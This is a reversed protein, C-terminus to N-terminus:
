ALSSRAASSLAMGSQLATKQWSESVEVPAMKSTWPNASTTEAVLAMRTTSPMEPVPAIGQGISSQFISTTREPDWFDKM